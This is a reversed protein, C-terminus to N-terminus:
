RMKQLYESRSYTILQQSERFHIQIKTVNKFMRLIRSISKKLEPSQSKTEFYALTESEMYDVGNSFLPDIRSTVIIRVFNPFIDFFREPLTKNDQLSNFLLEKEIQEPLNLHKRIWNTHHGKEVEYIQNDLGGVLVEELHDRCGLFPKPEERFLESFAVGNSM